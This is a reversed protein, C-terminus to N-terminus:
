LKEISLNLKEKVFSSKLYDNYMDEKEEKFRKMDFVKKEYGSTISAIVKYDKLSFDYKKMDMKNMAFMLDDNLSKELEKKEEELDKLKNCVKIYKNLSAEDVNIEKYYSNYHVVKKLM